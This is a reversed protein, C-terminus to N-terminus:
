YRGWDRAVFWPSAKTSWTIFDAPEFREDLVRLDTIQEPLLSLVHQRVDGEFNWLHYRDKGDHAHRGPGYDMPACKFTRSSRDEKSYFTVSVKQTGTLAANFKQKFM